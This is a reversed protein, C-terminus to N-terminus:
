VGSPNKKVPREPQATKSVVSSGGRIQSPLARPRPNPAVVPRTLSMSPRSLSPASAEWYNLAEGFRNHGWSLPVFKTFAACTKVDMGAFSQETSSISWNLKISPLHYKLRRQPLSPANFSSVESIHDRPPSQDKDM